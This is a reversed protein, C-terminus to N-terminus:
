SRPGSKRMLTLRTVAVFVELTTYCLVTLFLIEEVPVEPAVVLGSLFPSNGRFFIGLGIGTLDWVLFYGVGSGVAIAARRWNPFFALRYRFDFSLLGALSFVLALLYGWNTLSPM